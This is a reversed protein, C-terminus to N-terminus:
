LEIFVRNGRKKVIIVTEEEASENGEVSGYSDDGTSRKVNKGCPNLKESANSDGSVMGSDNEQEHSDTHSKVIQNRVSEVCENRNEFIYISTLGREIKEKSCKPLNQHDFINTDKLTPSDSPDHPPM